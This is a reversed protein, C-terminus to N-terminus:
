HRRLRNVHEKKIVDDPREFSRLRNCVQVYHNNANRWDPLKRYVSDLHQGTWHLVHDSPDINRLKWNANGTTVVFPIIPLDDIGAFLEKLHRIHARNQWTPNLFFFKKGGLYQVWHKKRGDGYITGSYNKCEFVLLGKKSVVLIDIETTGSNTPVYVNRFIQEPMFGFKKTLSLYASREGTSGKTAYEDPHKFRDLNVVLWIIGAVILLCITALMIPWTLEGIFEAM